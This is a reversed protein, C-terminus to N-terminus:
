NIDGQLHERVHQEQLLEQERKYLLEHESDFIPVEYSGNSQYGEIVDSLKASCWIFVGSTTTLDLNIHYIKYGIRVYDLGRSCGLRTAQARLFIHKVTDTAM